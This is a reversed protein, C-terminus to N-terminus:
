HKHKKKKKELLSEGCLYAVGLCRVTADFKQPTHAHSYYFSVHRVHIPATNELVRAKKKEKKKGNKKEM